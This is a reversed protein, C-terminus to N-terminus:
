LSSSHEPLNLGDEYENCRKFDSDIMIQSFGLWVKLIPNFWGFHNKSGNFYGICELCVHHFYIAWRILQTDSLTDLQLM